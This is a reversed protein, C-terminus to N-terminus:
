EVLQVLLAQKRLPCWKKPKRKVATGSYKDELEPHQCFTLDYSENYAAMPCGECSGVSIVQPEDISVM